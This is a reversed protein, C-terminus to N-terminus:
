LTHVAITIAEQNPIAYAEVWKTFYDSAVLIYCNGNKSPPLPGMIDAAVMAIPHIREGLVDSVLETGDELRNQRAQGFFKKRIHTLTRDEGLHGGVSGAHSEELVTDKMNNPVIM